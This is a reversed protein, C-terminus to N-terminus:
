DRYKEILKQREKIADQICDDRKREKVGACVSLFESMPNNNNYHPYYGWHDKGM